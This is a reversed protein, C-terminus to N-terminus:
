NKKKDSNKKSICYITFPKEELNFTLWFHTYNLKYCFTKPTSQLQEYHYTNTNM